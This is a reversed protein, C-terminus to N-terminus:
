SSFNDFFLIGPVPKLLPLTHIKFDCVAKKVPISNAFM